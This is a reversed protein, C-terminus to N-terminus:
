KFSVLLHIDYRSIWIHDVTDYLRGRLHEESWAPEKLITGKAQFHELGYNKTSTKISTRSELSIFM